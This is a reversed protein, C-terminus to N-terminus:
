RVGYVSLRVNIGYGKMSNLLIALAPLDCPLETWSLSVKAQSEEKAIDALQFVYQKAKEYAAPKLKADLDIIADSDSQMPSSKIAIQITMHEAAADRLAPFIAALARDVNGGTLELQLSSFKTLKREDIATQLREVAKQAIDTEEIYEGGPTSESEKPKKPKTEEAIIPKGDKTCFRLRVADELTYLVADPAIM